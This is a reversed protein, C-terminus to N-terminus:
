GEILRKLNEGKILDLAKQPLNLSELWRLVEAPTRWPADTGFLIHDYGKKEMIYVAREPELIGSVFSTDFYVNPLELLPGIKDWGYLCGMHAAIITLKEFRKAIHAIKTPDVSFNQFPEILHRLHPKYRLLGELDMTDLVVILGMAELEEFLAMAEKSLIDIRQLFPHIKVGKIKRDLIGHHRLDKKSGSPLLTAFPIIERHSLSLEYVWNNLFDVKEIVGTIPLLVFRDVGAEKEAKLLGEITPDHKISWKNPDDESLSGDLLEARRNIGDLDNEMYAHAHVDIIM